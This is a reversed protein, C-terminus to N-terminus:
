SKTVILKGAQGFVLIPVFLRVFALSIIAATLCGLLELLIFGSIKGANTKQHTSAIKSLIHFTTLSLRTKGNNLATVGCFV